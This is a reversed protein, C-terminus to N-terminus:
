KYTMVLHTVYAKRVCKDHYHKQQMFRALQQKDAVLTLMLFASILTEAKKIEISRTHPLKIAKQVM